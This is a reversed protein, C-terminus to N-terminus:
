ATFRRKVCDAMITDALSRLRELEDPEAAERLAPELTEDSDGDGIAKFMSVMRKAITRSCGADRLLLEVERPTPVYEGAASLRSKSAEVRALPNMALSVISVEWLDVQKILRNGEDDFDSDKTVYGISLGRVAKMGLLTRVENGLQTQAFVGKVYLGKNDEEMDTWKGPVQAPDHMWFMMPLAGDKRHQAISRKFAGPLVIDGGLDTNGFVSGHGEFEGDSVSKVDLSINLKQHM